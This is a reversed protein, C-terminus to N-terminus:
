AIVHSTELFALYPIVAYKMPKVTPTVSHKCIHWLRSLYSTSSGKLSSMGGKQPHGRKNDLFVTKNELSSMLGTQQLNEGTTPFLKERNYLEKRSQLKATSWM